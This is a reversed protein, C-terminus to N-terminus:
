SPVISTAAFVTCDEVTVLVVMTGDTTFTKADTAASDFESECVSRSVEEGDLVEGAADHGEGTSSEASDSCTSM